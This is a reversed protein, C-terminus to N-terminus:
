ATGLWFREAVISRFEQGGVARLDARGGGETLCPGAERERCAASPLETRPDMEQKAPPDLRSPRQADMEKLNEREGNLGPRPEEATFCM